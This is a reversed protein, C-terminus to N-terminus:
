DGRYNWSDTLQRVYEDMWRRVLAARAPRADCYRTIMDGTQEGSTPFHEERGFRGSYEWIALAMQWPEQVLDTGALWDHDKLKARFADGERGRSKANQDHFFRLRKEVPAPIGRACLRDFLKATREFLPRREEDFRDLYALPSAPEDDVFLSVAFWPRVKDDTGPKRDLVDLTMFRTETVYREVGGGMGIVARRAILVGRVSRAAYIRLGDREYVPRLDEGDGRQWAVAVDWPGTRASAVWPATRKRDGFWSTERRGEPLLLVHYAGHPKPKDASLLTLWPQRYRPDSVGRRDGLPDLDMCDEAMTIGREVYVKGGSRIVTRPRDDLTWGVESLYREALAPTDFGYAPVVLDRARLTLVSEPEPRPSTTISPVRPTPAPPQRPPLDRRQPQAGAGVREMLAAVSARSM